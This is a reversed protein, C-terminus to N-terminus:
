EDFTIVVGPQIRHQQMDKLWELNKDRHCAKCYSWSSENKQQCLLCEWSNIDVNRNRLTLIGNLPAHTEPLKVGEFKLISSTQM